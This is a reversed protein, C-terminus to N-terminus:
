HIHIFDIKVQIYEASRPLACVPTIQGRVILAFLMNRHWLVFFENSKSLYRMTAKSNVVM